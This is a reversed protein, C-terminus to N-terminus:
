LKELIRRLEARLAPLVDDSMLKQSLSAGPSMEENAVRSHTRVFPGIYPNAQGTRSEHWLLPLSDSPCNRYNVFTWGGARFGFTLDDGSNQRMRNLHSAHSLVEAALWQCLEVVEARVAPDAILRCKDSNVKFREDFFLAPRIDVLEM